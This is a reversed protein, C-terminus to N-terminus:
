RVELLSLLFSVLMELDEDGLQEGFNKPMADVCPGAPCESAVFASPDLISQKVYEEASLGPVRDGAWSGLGNLNPGPGNKNGRESIRHCVFCSPLLDDIIAFAKEEEIEHTESDEEGQEEEVVDAPIAVLTVEGTNIVRLYLVLNTLEEDSLSEQGGYPLMEVGTTNLPHDAPRGTKIFLVLQDDALETIFDSGILSKGLSEVGEGRPGHCVACFRFYTTQGDLAAGSLGASSVEEIAVIEETGGSELWDLYKAVSGSEVGVQTNISHLYTAMNLVDDDSLESRGGKPPMRVDTINFPNNLGRGMSIFGALQTPTLGGVFESETLDLGIGQIGTAQLSHCSACAEVFLHQGAEADGSVVAEGSDTETEGSATEETEASDGAELQALYQAVEASDVGAKTNITRMHAIISLLEDDSLDPRGGNPPMAVGTTNLPNDVDRGTKIYGLLQEDTLGGVFESEVLDKGLNPLGTGDPGHCVACIQTFLEQGKNNATKAEAPEPEPTATAAPQAGGCAALILGLCLIFFTVSISNLNRSTM